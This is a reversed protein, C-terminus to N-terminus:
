NLFNLIYKVIDNNLYNIKILIKKGFYFSRIDKFYEYFDRAEKVIDSMRHQPSWNYNLNNCCFCLSDNNMKKRYFHVWSGYLRYYLLRENTQRNICFLKACHFPFNPTIEMQYYKEYDIIHIMKKNDEEIHVEYNTKLLDIDRLVRKHYIDRTM